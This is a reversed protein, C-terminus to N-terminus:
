VASRKYTKGALFNKVQREDLAGVRETIEQISAGEAHMRRIEKRQEVTLRKPNAENVQEYHEDDEWWAKIFPNPIGKRPNQRVIDSIARDREKLSVRVKKTLGLKHLYKLGKFGGPIMNMGYQDSAIDDVHSEEWNMAEDFSQNIEMLTSTYLVGHWGMSERLTQYFLRRNGRRTEAIHEGLRKLWNRGTIGVYYYTDEDSMQRSVFQHVTETKPLNKSISHVYCQYGTNADGWEKLLYQLPVLTKWVTGDGYELVTHLQAPGPFPRDRVQTNITKEVLFLGQAIDMQINLLRKSSHTMNKTSKNHKILKDFLGHNRGPIDNVQRLCED